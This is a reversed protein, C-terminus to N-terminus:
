RYMCELVGTIQSPIAGTRSNPLELNTDGGEVGNDMSSGRSEAEVSPHNSRLLDSLPTPPALCLLRFHGVWRPVSVVGGIEDKSNVDYGHVQGAQWFEEETCRRGQGLPVGVGFMLKRQGKRSPNDGGWAGM